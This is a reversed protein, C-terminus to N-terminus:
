KEELLMKMVQVSQEVNPTNVPIAAYLYSEIVGYKKMLPMKTIPIAFLHQETVYESKGKETGPVEIQGDMVGEPFKAPDFYSDLPIHGGNKTVNKLDKIPIIAISNTEAAYQLLLMQLNYMAPTTVTLTFKGALQKNLDDEIAQTIASPVTSENMMFIRFGDSKGGCGSVFLLLVLGISMWGWKRKNM